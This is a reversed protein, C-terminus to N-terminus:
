RHTSTAPPDASPSGSTGGIMRPQDTTQAAHEPVRGAAFHGWDRDIDEPERDIRKAIQAIYTDLFARNDREDFYFPDTRVTVTLERCYSFVSLSARTHRRIPPAGTIRKLELNGCVVAGKRRPFRATFRKAPDGVNSLVATSTCLNLDLLWRRVAPAKELSYNADAFLTGLRYHKIRAMDDRVSALLQPEDDLSKPYRKLFTFAALNTAPTAYDDADRLDVPVM